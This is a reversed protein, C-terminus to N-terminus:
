WMAEGYGRVRSDMKVDYERRHSSNEKNGKPKTESGCLNINKNQKNNNTENHFTM